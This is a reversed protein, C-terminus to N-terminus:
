DALVQVLAGSELHQRVQYVACQALGLGQLACCLNADADNVAFPGNM